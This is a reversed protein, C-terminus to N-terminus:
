IHVKELPRLPSSLLLPLPLLLSLSPSLSIFFSLSLSLSIYIDLDICRLDPPRCFTWSVELSLIFIGLNIDRLYSPMCFTQNVDLALSFSASIIYMGIAKTHSSAQATCATIATNAQQCSLIARPLPLRRQDGRDTACRRHPPVFCVCHHVVPVQLLIHIYSICYICIIYVYRIHYLQQCPIPMANM